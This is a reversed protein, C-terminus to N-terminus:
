ATVRDVVAAFKTASIEATYGHEVTARASKGLRARLSKGAALKSL